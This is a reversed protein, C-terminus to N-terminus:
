VFSKRLVTIRSGSDEITSYNFIVRRRTTLPFPADTGEALVLQDMEHVDEEPHASTGGAPGQHPGARVQSRGGEADNEETDASRGQIPRSEAASIRPRTRPQPDKRPTRRQARRRACVAGRFGFFLHGNKPVTKERDAYARARARSFVPSSAVRRARSPFRLYRAGSSSERANGRKGQVARTFM